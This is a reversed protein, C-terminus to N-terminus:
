RASAIMAEARALDEPTNLNFLLRGPEGFRRLEEEGILRPGLERVAEQLPRGGELARELQALLGPGYRALLPHLRGGLEPVALPEPLRALWGLLEATVFPLDCGVAIVARGDAERLAAVIGCLPHRPEEPERLVAAETPPLATSPKAVVVVDAGAELGASVPYDILPRGGLQLSPKAGGVREGRGGALVAILSDV